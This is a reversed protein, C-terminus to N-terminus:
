PALSPEVRCFVNTQRRVLAADPQYELAVCEKRVHRREAVHRGCHAMTRRVLVDRPRSLQERENMECIQFLAAGGIQRAAFLLADGNCPRQRTFRSNEEEIFWKGRDIAPRSAFQM